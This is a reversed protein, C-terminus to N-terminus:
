PRGRFEIIKRNKFENCLNKSLDFIKMSTNLITRLKVRSYYAIMLFHEPLWWATTLYEDHLSWTNM